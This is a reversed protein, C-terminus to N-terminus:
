ATLVIKGSFRRSLLANMAAGAQAMPFTAGVHPRLKGQEYLSLVERLKQNGYAPDREYQAGFVVGIVSINKVLVLNAPVNQIRGAAFGVVLMRAEWNVARIAQEFAEGGVPDYVV